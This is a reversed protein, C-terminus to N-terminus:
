HAADEFAQIDSWVIAPNLRLEARGILLDPADLDQRLAYCAQKLLHRGHTTDADPWLYGILKDRRLGKKGAAALLALLALTKNRRAAGTCATGDQEISLGGFTRLALM